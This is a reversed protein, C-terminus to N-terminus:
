NEAQYEVNLEAIQDVLKQRREGEPLRDALATRREIEAKIQKKSKDAMQEDGGRQMDLVAIEKRKKGKEQEPQRLATDGKARLVAPKANATATLARKEQDSAAPM